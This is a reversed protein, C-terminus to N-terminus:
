ESRTPYQKFLQIVAGSELGHVGVSCGDARLRDDFRSRYALSNDSVNWWLRRGVERKILSEWPAKWVPPEEGPQLDPEAGLRSLGMGQGM